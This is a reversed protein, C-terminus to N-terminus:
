WKGATDNFINDTIDDIILKLLDDQVTNLMQNSDFTQYATYRKEFDEEENKTNTFRVNITVSLKTQSAYSDASMAMPTLSYDTIEGEVHLDGNKNLVQLRTNKTYVDRLKETFENALPAYVLEAVNTFETISITKFKTYDIYAGNFKISVSCANLLLVILILFIKKMILKKIKM